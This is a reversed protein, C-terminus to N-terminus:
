RSKPGSTAPTPTQAIVYPPCTSSTVIPCSRSCDVGDVLNGARATRVGIPRGTPLGFVLQETIQRKPTFLAEAAHRARTMRERDDGRPHPHQRPSLLIQESTNIWERCRLPSENIKPLSSESLQSTEALSSGM